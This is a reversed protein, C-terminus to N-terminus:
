WFGVDIFKVCLPTDIYNDIKELVFSKDSLGTWDMIAHFLGVKHTTWWAFCLLQKLPNIQKWDLGLDNIYWCPIPGFSIQGLLNLRLCQLNSHWVNHLAVQSKLIEFDDLVHPGCHEHRMNKKKKRESCFQIQCGKFCKKM